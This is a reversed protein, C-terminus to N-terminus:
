EDFRAPPAAGLSDPAADGQKSNGRRVLMLLAAFDYVAHAVIPVALGEFEYALWGLYASALGALIAYLSTVAHALGFVVSTIVLGGTRGAWDALLPQLVGRFLLEEGVGALLAIMGLKWVPLPRFLPILFQNVTRNLEGFWGWSLRRFLALGVLPPGAALVGWALEYATGGVLAWAPLPVFARAALAIGALGTEFIVTLRFPDPSPALARM